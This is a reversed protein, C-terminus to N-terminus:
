YRDPRFADDFGGDEAALVAIIGLCCTVPLLDDDSFHEVLFSLSAKLREACRAIIEEGVAGDEIEVQEFLRHVVGTANLLATILRKLETGDVPEIIVM